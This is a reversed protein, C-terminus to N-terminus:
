GELLVDRLVAGASVDVERTAAVLVVRGEHTLERLRELARRAPGQALEERYRDAFEEFRQPDHGYWTRLETTPAVEKLWVDFPADRKGIGRPWLRDVLVAQEGARRTHSYLRALEVRPIVADPSGRSGATRTVPALGEWVSSIALGLRELEELHLASLAELIKAGKETLHLRVIRRDDNDRARSVIGASDARNALEVASHHRLLLYDAVDGVTPGRPDRHGRVALLLQHQASTIGAAQAQQESWRLFHRLGTRLALLRAYDEDSLSM